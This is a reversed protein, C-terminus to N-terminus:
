FLYYCETAINDPRDLFFKYSVSKCNMLCDGLILWHVNWLATVISQRQLLSQWFQTLIHIKFFGVTKLFANKVICSSNYTYKRRLANNKLTSQSFIASTCKFFLINKWSICATNPSYIYQMIFLDYIVEKVPLM